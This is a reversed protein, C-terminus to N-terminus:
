FPVEDGEPQGLLNDRPRLRQILRREEDLAANAPTERVAVEVASREYTLGPDHGEAFQGRWFGKRRRWAQFHRTL